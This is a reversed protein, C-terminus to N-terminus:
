VLVSSRLVYLTTQVTNPTREINNPTYLWCPHGYPTVAQM